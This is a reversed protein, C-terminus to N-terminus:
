NLKEGRSQPVPSNHGGGGNKGGLLCYGEKIVRLSWQVKIKNLV